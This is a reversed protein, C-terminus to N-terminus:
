SEWEGNFANIYFVEGGDLTIRWVPVTDWGQVGESEVVTLARNAYYGLRIDTVMRQGKGVELRGALRLLAELAPRVEKPSSTYGRPEVWFKTVREIGKPSVEVKVFGSFVPWEDFMPVYEVVASLPGKRTFVRSLSVGRPLLNQQQLYEEVAQQVEKLNELNLPRAAAGQAAPEYVVAQTEPDIVATRPDYGEHWRVGKLPLVKQYLEGAEVPIEPTPQYQVRLFRMPGPTRPLAVSAPLVLGGAALTERHREVQERYSQEAYSPFLWEPGWVVLALLLNLASFAALLIARAKPWDM